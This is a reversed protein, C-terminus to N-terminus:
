NESADCFMNKLDFIKVFKCLNLSHISSCFSNAYRFSEIASILAKFVKVKGNNQKFMKSTVNRLCFRFSTYASRSENRRFEFSFFTRNFTKNKM